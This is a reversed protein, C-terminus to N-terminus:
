RSCPKWRASAARRSSASVRNGAIRFAVRLHLGGQEDPVSLAIGVDGNMLGLSYDNRTVLVPRGEYWGHVAAILGADRLRTAVHENLSVVGSEGQRLACLLQFRAFADLIEGAWIEHADISGDVPRTAALRELYARYGPAEGSGDVAVAIAAEPALVRVDDM